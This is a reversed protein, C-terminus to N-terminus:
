SGSDALRKKIIFILLKFNLPSLKMVKQSKLSYYKSLKM